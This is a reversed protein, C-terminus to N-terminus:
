LRGEVIARVTARYRRAKAVAEDSWGHRQQMEQMVAHVCSASHETEECDWGVLVAWLWADPAYEAWDRSSTTLLREFGKFIPALDASSPPPTDVGPRIRTHCTPCDDPDPLGLLSHAMRTAARWPRYGGEHERFPALWAMDLAAKDLWDAVPTSYGELEPDANPDPERLQDAAQQLHQAAPWKSRTKPMDAGPTTTDPM